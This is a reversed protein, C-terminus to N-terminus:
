GGPSVSICLLVFVFYPIIFLFVAWYPKWKLDISNQVAYYFEIESIKAPPQYIVVSEHRFIEKKM